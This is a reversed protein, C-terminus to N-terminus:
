EIPKDSITAAGGGHDGGRLVGTEDVFYSLRGTKGYELPIATAEFKNPSVIMEIKYGYKDVLDKSVLGESLLEELSGYRGDGKTSQFTAEASVVTRLLSKAISENMLLPSQQAESSVGATMLMLLSKPIHLEHFPGSGDNSLAYTVPDLVPNMQSLFDRMKENVPTGPNGNLPYYRELLEPGLYFQGVLQRPQWRTSNRFHSDSSLTQHELFFDAVHRTSSPDPSLVLFDGIFAYAFAGAYSTIETEGRKETQALLSAGKMGLSDIIKPILRKVGERDKVAIAIIPNPDSSVTKGQGDDALPGAPKSKEAPASANTTKRPMALAIENGLLPLLDDKIKIGLQKEYVAFPSEPPRDAAPATATVRRGGFRRSAEENDAFTKLMGQYIQDYDLSVAVFLDVDAPFVGPSAPVLPPGSVFQPVFPIANNKTEAGNVILTRVVYSDGEFAIAAGVAEPWKPQGGFMLGYLSTFPDIPAPGQAVPGSLTAANSSQSENAESTVQPSGAPVAEGSVPPAATASVMEPPPPDEVDAEAPAEDPKVSNAAESEMREKAEAEAKQQRDRDEKEISKVDVYIFIAESAFRNRAMAFNQDEALSKSGRPALDRFAFPQDSMLILSGAQRIQYPPPTPEGQTPTASSIAANPKSQDASASPSSTPTPTPTPLLTPIFGRLEPEFKQAEEVSSFEIAILVTPLKPRAPWAAVLMRSGALVDAHANLWKIATKFEKPPGGLKILPDLLDNVASSRILGGVGRVEGYVRYSEAAFLSDFTPVPEAARSASPKKPPVPRQKQQATLSSALLALTGILILLRTLLNTNTRFKKMCTDQLPPV